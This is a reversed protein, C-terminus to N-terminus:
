GDGLFRLQLHTVLREAPDDLDLQAIQLLRALRYRFTNRHVYLADAAAVVDGFHDLYARLTAVYNTGKAADHAALAAVKESQVTPDGAALAQLRHLAIASRLPEVHGIREGRQRLVALVHEAEDRSRRVSAADDVAAGIGALVPRMLHREARERLDNALATMKAPERTEATSLLVYVLEGISVVYANRRFVELHLTLVAELSDVAREVHSEDEFEPAFALVALPVGAPLRLGTRGSPARKGELVTRLQEARRERDLDTASRHHLVHMAAIQAASRLSEEAEAALPREGEVVWISGLPEDGARMAIALRRRAIAREGGPDDPPRWLHDLHVVDRSRYLEQFVGQDTMARSWSAPVARGLITDQRAKDIPHGLSSYALVNSQMDEITTAGGVTAAIANALGFLDGVSVGQGSSGSGSRHSPMRAARATRLLSLLQGWSTAPPVGLVALRNGRAADVLRDPAAEGLKVVAAAAGVRAVEDLADVAAAQAADVGVMLVIDDAAPLPGGFRDYLLAEGAPRDLGRPAIVVELLGGLAEVLDALTPVPADNM